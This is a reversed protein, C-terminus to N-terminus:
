GRQLYCHRSVGRELLRQAGVLLIEVQVCGHAAIGVLPLPRFLQALTAFAVTSESLREM